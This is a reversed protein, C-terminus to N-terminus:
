FSILILFGIIALVVKAMTEVVVGDGSDCFSNNGVVVSCTVVVVVVVVFVFPCTVLVSM